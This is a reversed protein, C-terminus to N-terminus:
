CFQDNFVLGVANDPGVVYYVFGQVGPEGGRYITNQQSAFRM